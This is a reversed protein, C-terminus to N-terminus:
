AGQIDARHEAIPRIYKAVRKIAAAATHAAGIIRAIDEDDMTEVVYDWGGIEYNALAYQKVAAIRPDTTTTTTM